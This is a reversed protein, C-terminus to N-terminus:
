GHNGPVPFVPVCSSVVSFSDLFENWVDLYGSAYSIDGLLFIGDTGGRRGGPETDAGCDLEKSLARLTDAAPRGYHFWTMSDDTSARGVDGFAVISAPRHVGTAALLPVDVIFECSFNSTNQDGFTYYVKSGSYSSIGYFIASHTAGFPFWGSTSAPAGFLSSKNFYSTVGYVIHHYQGPAPGWRLVPAGGSLSSWTLMLDRPGHAASLRPSLPENPDAFTVITSSKAVAMPSALGGSFMYVAISARINTLQFRLTGRGRQIYESSDSCYGLKIPVVSFIDVDAPSYIGIWDGSSQNSSSYSVTLQPRILPADCTRRPVETPSVSDISYNISPTLYKMYQLGVLQFENKV